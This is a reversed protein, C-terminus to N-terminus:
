RMSESYPLPPAYDPLSLSPIASLYLETIGSDAPLARAYFDAKELRTAMTLVNKGATIRLESGTLFLLEQPRTDENTWHVSVSLPDSVAFVPSDTIVRLDGGLMKMFPSQLASEDFQFMAQRCDELPELFQKKEAYGRHWQWLNQGQEAALGAELMGAQLRANTDGGLTLAFATIASARRSTDDSPCAILWRNWDRRLMLSLILPNSQQMQNLAVSQSQEVLAFAAAKDMGIGKEDYPVQQRTFPEALFTTEGVYRSILAPLADRTRRDCSAVLNTLALRWLSAIDSLDRPPDLHLIPMGNAMVRGPRLKQIPFRIVLDASASVVLPGQLSPANLDRIPSQIAMRYKNLPAFLAAEPIVAGPRDYHWIGTVSTADSQTEVSKLVPENQAWIDLNPSVKQVLAGLQAATSTAVGV